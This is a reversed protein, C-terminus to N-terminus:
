QSRSGSMTNDVKAPLLRALLQTLMALGGSDKARSYYEDSVDGYLDSDPELGVRRARQDGSGVSSYASGSRRVACQKCVAPVQRGYVGGSSAGHLDAIACLDVISLYDLWCGILLLFMVAM